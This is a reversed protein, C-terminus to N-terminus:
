RCFQSRFIFLNNEKIIKLLMSPDFSSSPDVYTMLASPCEQHLLQITHPFIAKRHIVFESPLFRLIQTRLGTRQDDDIFEGVYFKGM